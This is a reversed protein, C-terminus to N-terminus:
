GDDHDRNWGQNRGLRPYNLRFGRGQNALFSVEENYLAEFHANDPNVGSFCIDNEAKYGSGMVRKSLDMQTIMKAMNQDREQEKEIQEKTMKFTLPSVQDEKTNWARNIKTMGDLLTASIEFTQQIIGGQVLQDVM